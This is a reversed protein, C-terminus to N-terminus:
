VPFKGSDAADNSYYITFARETGHTNKDYPKLTLTVYTGQGPKPEPLYQTEPSLIADIGSNAREILQRTFLTNLRTRYGDWEMYQAGAPTTYLSIAKQVSHTKKIVLKYTTTAALVDTNKFRVKITCNLNNIDTSAPLIISLKGFPFTLTERSVTPYLPPQLGVDS